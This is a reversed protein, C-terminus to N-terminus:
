ALGRRTAYSAAEARNAAGTKAYINSVHRNVTNLSIVLEDAIQQNSRGAALLRLVEIERASLGGTGGERSVDETPRRADIAQIFDAVLAPGASSSDQSEMGIYIGGQTEDLILLRAQPILAAVRRIEEEGVAFGHKGIGHGLVLTPTKLQRLLTEVSRGKWARAKISWDAQNWTQRMMEKGVSAPDWPFSTRATAELFLEWNQDAMEDLAEPVTSRRFLPMSELILAEVREPHKVAYSVSPYASSGGHVLVFRDFGVADVVAELDLAWDELVLDDRLGRMSLGQGRGDYSVLHFLTSLQDLVERSAPRRWMWGLHNLPGPALVLARGEGSVTYAIDYGDSTTVYQVSPANM